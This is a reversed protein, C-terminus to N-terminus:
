RNYNLIQLKLRTNAKEKLLIEKADDLFPLGNNFKYESMEQTLDSEKELSQTLLNELLNRVSEVLSKKSKHMKEYESQVIDAVM